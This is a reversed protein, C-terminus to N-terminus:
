EGASKLYENKLKAYTDALQSIDQRYNHLNEDGKFAAKAHGNIAKLEKVWIPWSPLKSLKNNYLQNLQTVLYYQTRDEQMVTKDDASVVFIAFPVIMDKSIDDNITHRDGFWARAKLWQDFGILNMTPDVPIWEKASDSYIEVWRHDNHQLGFVSMRNGSQKIKEEATQERNESKTYINIEAIPRYLIGLENIMAMYVKALEFCNGGQRVLIEKVTRSKYDTSTWEFHSSLWNLLTKVKDFNNDDNAVIQESFLKINLASTDSPLGIDSKQQAM